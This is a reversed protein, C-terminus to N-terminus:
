FGEEERALNRLLALQKKLRETEEYELLAEKRAETLEMQLRENESRLHELTYQQDLHDNQLQQYGLQLGEREVLARKWTEMRKQLSRVRGSLDELLDEVEGLRAASERELGAKQEKVIANRQRNLLWELDDAELQDSEFEEPLFQPHSDSHVLAPVNKPDARKVGPAPKRSSLLFRWAVFVGAAALALLLLLVTLM